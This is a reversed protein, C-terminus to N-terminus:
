LGKMARLVGGPIQYGGVNILPTGVGSGSFTGTGGAYGSAGAPAGGTGSAPYNQAAWDLASGLQSAADRQRGYEREAYQSYADGAFGLLKSVADSFDRDFGLQLKNLGYGRAGSRRLGKANLRSILNRIGENRNELLRAYASVGSQTNKGILGRTLDDLSGFKDQFGAPVVGFDILARQLAAKQASADASSSAGLDSLFQVYQPSGQALKLLDQPTPNGVATPNPPPAYATPAPTPAPAPAPRPKPFYYPTADPNLVPV